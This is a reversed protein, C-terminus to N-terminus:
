QGGGKAGRRLRAPLWLPLSLLFLIPVWIVGTVALWLGARAIGSLARVTAHWAIKATHGLRWQPAPPISPEAKQIMHVTLTSLAVQDALYNLRGQAQEIEGRVRALHQEVELIDSLTARRKMLDLLLAEEQRKTVLRAELDVYEQTVNESGIDTQTIKGVERLAKVAADLRVNPIRLVITARYGSKPSGSFTNGAVFGGFRVAMLVVEDQAAQADKVELSVTGNRIIKQGLLSWGAAGVDPAATQAVALEGTSMELAASRYARKEKKEEKQVEAYGGKSLRAEGGVAAMRRPTAYYYLTVLGVFVLAGGFVLYLTRRAKNM